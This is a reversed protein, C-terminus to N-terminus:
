GLVTTWERLLEDVEDIKSPEFNGVGFGFSGGKTQVKKPMDEMEDAWSGLSQDRLFEGLEVKRQSKERRMPEHSERITAVKVVKLVDEQEQIQTKTSTPRLPLSMSNGRNGRLGRGGNGRQSRSHEREKPGQYLIQSSHQLSAHSYSVDQESAIQAPRPAHAPAPSPKPKDRKPRPGSQLPGTSSASPRREEVLYYKSPSRSGDRTSQSPQLSSLSLRKPSQAGRTSSVTGERRRLEEQASKQLRQEQIKLAEEPSTEPRSVRKTDKAVIAAYSATNTHRYPLKEHAADPVSKRQLESAASKASTESIPQQNQTNTFKAKSNGLLVSDLHSRAIFYSGIVKQHHDSHDDGDVERALALQLTEIDVLLNRVHNVCTALTEPNITSSISSAAKFLDSPSVFGDGEQLSREDDNVATGDDSISFSRRSKEYKEAAEKAIKRLQIIEKRQEAEAEYSLKNSSVQQAFILVQMLLQLTSKLKDIQSRLIEIKSDRFPLMLRGMKGSKTKDVILKIETFVTDCEKITEKATRIANGSILDATKNQEFIGGLEQIVFSTLKVENAINKIRRDASAVGDAYQYLASSLKLGADALQVVSAVLGIIEAM